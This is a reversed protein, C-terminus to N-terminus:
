KRINVSESFVSCDDITDLNNILENFHVNIHHILAFDRDEKM